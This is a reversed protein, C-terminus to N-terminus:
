MCRLPTSLSLRIKLKIIILVLFNQTGTALPGIFKSLTGILKKWHFRNQSKNQTFNFFLGIFIMGVPASAPMEGVSWNV